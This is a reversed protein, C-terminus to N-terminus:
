ARKKREKRIQKRCKSCASTKKEKVKNFIISEYEHNCEKCKWWVRKSSKLTVDSPLLNENKTPHWEAAIDPRLTSLANEPCARRGNCFPCKEKNIDKKAMSVVTTKWEHGKKCRFYAYKSSNYKVNWPFEKNKEFDWFEAIDDRKFVLSNEKHFLTNACIPCKEAKRKKSTMKNISDQWEHGGSCRWYVKINSRVRVKDPTLKKNKKYDWFIAIDARKKRLSKKLERRNYSSLIADYDRKVDIMTKLQQLKKLQQETLKKEQELIELVEVICKNLEDFNPSDNIIVKKYVNGIRPCSKERIRILKVGYDKLFINKERDRKLAKKDKHFYSGDYEIGLKLFPIYIDIEKKKFKERNRITNFIKSLYFFVVQEPFSTGADCMAGSKM